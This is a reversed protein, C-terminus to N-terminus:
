LKFTWMFVYIFLVHCKQYNLYDIIEFDSQDICGHISGTDQIYEVVGSVISKFSLSQFRTNYIYDDILERGRSRVRSSRTDVEM